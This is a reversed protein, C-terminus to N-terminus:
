LVPSECRDLTETKETGNQVLDVVYETRPHSTLHLVHCRPCQYPSLQTEVMGTLLMWEAFAEAEGVTLYEVKGTPCRLGKRGWMEMELERREPELEPPKWPRSPVAAKKQRPRSPGHIMGPPRQLWPIGNRDTDIGGRLGGM